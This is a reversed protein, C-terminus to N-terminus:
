SRTRNLDSMMFVFVEKAAVRTLQYAEQLCKIAKHLTQKIDFKPLNSKQASESHYGHMQQPDEPKPHSCPIGKISKFEGLFVIDNEAYNKIEAKLNKVYPLTRTPRQPSEGGLTQELANWIMEWLQENWLCEFVTSSEETYCLYLLKKCRLAKMECLLQPIYYEPVKYHVDTSFKKGTQPCKFEIGLSNKNQGPVRCSGDPSVVLLNDESEIRYCGEEHFVLDPYYVPLVKAALTAAANIENKSGHEMLLKVENTPEQKELKNIVNDFHEVQKKLTDLGLAANATSGTVKATQRIQHWTESRQKVFKSMEHVDVGRAEYSKIIEDSLGLLCAFNPQEKLYIYSESSYLPSAQNSNACFCCLQDITDLSEKIAERGRYLMTELANIVFSYQNGSGAENKWKELAKTKKLNSERIKKTSDSLTRMVGKIETQNKM